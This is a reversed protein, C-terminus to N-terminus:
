YFIPAFLLTEARAIVYAARKVAVARRGRLSSCYFDETTHESACLIELRSSIPGHFAQSIQGRDSAYIVTEPFDSQGCRTPEPGDSELVSRGTVTKVPGGSLFTCLAVAAPPNLSVGAASTKRTLSKFRGSSSRRGEPHCNAARPRPPSMFFHSCPCCRPGIYLKAYDAQAAVRPRGM